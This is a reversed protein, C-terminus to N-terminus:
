GENLRKKLEEVEQRLRAVELAMEPLSRMVAEIRQSRRAERAPYGFLMQGPEKVSKPVGSKAMVVTNPALEVHDAIGVNGGLMSNKGIRSSGAIGSLAAIVVNEEVVVNHGIQILNDLKAGKQIVTEGITARDITTNAGIEVDDELRVIGMQPVKSRSGDPKPIFGFGDSGIIAGSHIICREGILCGHYVTVNPYLRTHRGVRAGRGVSVFSGIKAGEDVIAGEDIVAYPGLWASPHVSAQQHVVATPHVGEWFPEPEPVLYKAALLFSQYPDKVRILAPASNGEMLKDEFSEPVLVAGAGSQPLYKQFKPSAFFALEDSRANELRAIMSIARQPDGALAGGVLSAIEGVTMSM